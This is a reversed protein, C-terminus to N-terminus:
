ICHKIPSSDQVPHTLATAFSLKQRGPRAVAVAVACFTCVKVCGCENM